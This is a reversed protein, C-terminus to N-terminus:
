SEFKEKLVWYLGKVNSRMEPILLQIAIHEIAGWIGWLIMFYYFPPVFGVTFLVIFFAGEIYGGIKTTYLHFSPLKKFKILSLIVTSVLFGIFILFSIKYPLFEQWKFLYIGVFALVYSFNDAMSDLRAGLETELKFKRAIFGDAVDTLLNLVFFLVFLNEKGALAFYLIFPFACLRYLSIKNPLTLKKREKLLLSAPSRNFNDKKLNNKKLKM